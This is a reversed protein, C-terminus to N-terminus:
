LVSLIAVRRCWHLEHRLGPKLYRGCGSSFSCLNVSINKFRKLSKAKKCIFDEIGYHIDIKYLFSTKEKFYVHLVAM